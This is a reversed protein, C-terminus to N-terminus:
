KKFINWFGRYVNSGIIKPKANKETLSILELTGGFMSMEDRYYRTYVIYKSNKDIKPFLNYSYGSSQSVFRYRSSLENFNVLWLSGDRGTIYFVNEKSTPLVEACGIFEVEWVKEYTGEFSTSYILDYREKNELCLFVFTNDDSWSITPEGFIEVIQGPLNKKCLLQPQDTALYYIVLTHPSTYIDKGEIFAIKTGDPSFSPISGRCLSNSLKVFTNENRVIWLENGNAGIAIFLGNSSIIAFDRSFWHFSGAVIRQNTGDINSIIVDQSGSAYDRVFVLKKDRSPPSYLKGNKVIERPNTQNIDIQFISPESSNVPLATFYIDGEPITYLNDYSCPDCANSILISLIGLLLFKRIQKCKKM